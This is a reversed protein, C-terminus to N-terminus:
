QLPAPRDFVWVEEVIPRGKANTGKFQVTLTKGDASVERTATRVVKGDKKIVSAISRPGTRTLAMTDENPDGVLKADKGDFKYTSSSQIQKGDAEVTDYTAHEGEATVAYSRTESRPKPGPNIRTKAINLVWTGIWPDNTATGAGAVLPLSSNWIDRAVKWGGDAQRQWIGIFRGRDEIAPGGAVPALKWVFAGEEIAYDGTLTVKRDPISIDTTKMKDVIAQFWV